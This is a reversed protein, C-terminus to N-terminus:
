IKKLILAAWLGLQSWLPERYIGAQWCGRLRPLLWRHRAVNFQQLVQQHHSTLKAAQQTLAQLQRENGARFTGQWVERVTRLRLLRTLWHTKMGVLNAEHQRYQLCPESDYVVTGGAGTVLLYLWWDHAVVQVQKGAYRLLTMAAHNFVMTNGSAFNQTLAHRFCPPRSFLPSLGLPQAQQDVLRTRCGYLAPHGAATRQLHQLARQLKDAEWVDDQDCFAYYDAQIAPNCALSLFNAVFGQRPGQTIFLRKNTWKARYETLLSLTNDQSGDDSVWVVWAQHTQAAISDLQAALYREGNYTCLLIAVTPIAPQNM